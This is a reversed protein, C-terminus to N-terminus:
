RGCLAYPSGGNKSGYGCRDDPLPLVLLLALTKWSLHQRAKEARNARSPKILSIGIALPLASLPAVVMSMPGFRPGLSVTAIVIVELLAAIFAWLIIVELVRGLVRIGFQVKAVLLGLQSGM